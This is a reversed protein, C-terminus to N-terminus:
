TANQHLENALKMGTYFFTLFINSYDHGGYGCTEFTGDVSVNSNRFCAPFHVSIGNISIVILYTCRSVAEIMEVDCVNVIRTILGSYESHIIDIGQDSPELTLVGVM